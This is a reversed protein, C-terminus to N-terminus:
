FLILGALGFFCTVIVTALALFGQFMMRRMDRLEADVRQFGAVMQDKLDDLREDTWAERAMAEM